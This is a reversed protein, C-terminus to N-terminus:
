ATAERIHGLRHALRRHARYSRSKVTGVPVGLEEAAMEMTLDRYHTAEIVAREEAPLADVASRVQWAEWLGEFSPSLAVVDAEVDVRDREHRRERRYVDVAVRRAIAYLWPGFGRAPDFRASARWARTFTEQVVEEALSRERLATLAITFVAGSFERYVDRVAREDGAVFHRITREDPM